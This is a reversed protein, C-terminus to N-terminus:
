AKRVNKFGTVYSDLKKGNSPRVKVGDPIFALVIGREWIGNRKFEIESGNKMDKSKANYPNLGLKEAHKIVSIERTQLKDAIDAPPFEGYHKILYKEEEITWIKARGM